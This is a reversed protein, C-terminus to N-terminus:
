RWLTSSWAQARRWRRGRWPPPTPATWRQVPLDRSESGRRAVGLPDHGMAALARMLPPGIFGTAGLVMVKM